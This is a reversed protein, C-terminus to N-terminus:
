RPSQSYGILPRGWLLLPLRDIAYPRLESLRVKRMFAPDGELDRIELRIEPDKRQWDITIFGYNEGTNMIGIRNRNPGPESRRYASALPSSTLDYVPYGLQADIKTLEAFHRDGSLLIVGSAGAARIADFLRRSERPFNAWKEYPEEDAAVQISSVILRVEAPLRLQEELWAWQANGLMTKTTDSDPSYGREGRVLPSRFYRTDLLLIQVRRGPPGVIHADYVGERRRRPSNVPEHFFDLFVKQSEVRRPYESGGDNVGYDHDDWTALVPVKQRLASFGPIADLRRYKDRLTTSDETDAYINDGLMLFLDPDDRMVTKWASQNPYSTNACSGFAIRTALRPLPPDGAAAQACLAALAALFGHLRKM